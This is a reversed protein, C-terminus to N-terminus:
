KSKKNVLIKRFFEEHEKLITILHKNYFKLELDIIDLKRKEKKNLNIM